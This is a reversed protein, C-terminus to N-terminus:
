VFLNGGFRSYGAAFVCDDTRKALSTFRINEIIDRTSVEQAQTLLSMAGATFLLLVSSLRLSSVNRM